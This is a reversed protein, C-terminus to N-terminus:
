LIADNGLKEVPVFLESLGFEQPGFVDQNRDERLQPPASMIIIKVRQGYRLAQTPVPAGTERDVICILDPVIARLQGDVRLLLNENQFSVEAKSNEDGLATLRCKGISFGNATERELDTIKGDFAMKAYSYYSTTRLYEVLASVPDGNSRADRLTRGIELAIGLTGSIAAQKVQRGTMPFGAIFVRLGMKIALARVMDEAFKDTGAEVVAYNLHEDVVVLPTVRIGSASFNNMQLEPFARGMGDADVVPIGRTAAVMIPAMSNGGGIEAPILADVRRGTIKELKDLAFLVEEGQILKEMQVTPAGFGAISFVTMDDELESPELMVPAGHENIAQEAILRGIYPDGGGGTGLFAAGEALCRLDEQCLKWSM